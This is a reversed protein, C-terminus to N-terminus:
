NENGNGGCGGAQAQYCSGGGNFRVLESVAATVEPYKTCRADIFVALDNDHTLDNALPAVEDDNDRLTIEFDAVGDGDLDHAISGLWSPEAQGLASNWLVYNGAVTTRAAALGAEACYLAATKTRTLDTARTSGLQVKTLVAAGGLLAAVIILTVLMASGTESSRPARGSM